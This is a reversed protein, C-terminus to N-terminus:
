CGSGPKQNGTNDRGQWEKIYIMNKMIWLRSSFIHLQYINTLVQFHLCACCQPRVGFQGPDGGGGEEDCSARGAIEDDSFYELIPLSVAPLLSTDGLIRVRVGHEALKDAEGVM